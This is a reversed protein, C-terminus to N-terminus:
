SFKVHLVISLKPGTKNRPLNRSIFYVVNYIELIENGKKQVSSIFLENVYIQVKNKLTPKEATPLQSSAPNARVKHSYRSYGWFVSVSIISIIM